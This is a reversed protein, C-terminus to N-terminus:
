NVPGLKKIVHKAVGQVVLQQVRIEKDPYMEQNCYKLIAEGTAMDKGAYAKLTNTSNEDLAVVIDGIMATSQKRIVIMDGDDIGADVMSYGEAKLIYYEGQGFLSVPLSVYEEINEEETEPEGCPISGVVPASFSNPSFKSILRTVITRSAGDYEIMGRNDMEVLYRYTTTKPIGVGQAIENVSPTTHKDCYYQDIFTSIRNMIDISMTRM